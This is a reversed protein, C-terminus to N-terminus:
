RAHDDDDIMANVITELKGLYLPKRREHNLNDRYYSLHEVDNLDSKQVTQDYSTLALLPYIPSIRLSPIVLTPSRRTMRTM